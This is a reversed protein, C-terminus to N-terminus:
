TVRRSQRRFNTKVNDAILVGLDSVWAQSGATGTIKVTFEYGSVVMNVVGRSDPSAVVDSTYTFSDSDRSAKYGISLTVNDSCNIVIGKITKIGEAGANFPLTEAVSNALTAAKVAELENSKFHVIQGLQYMGAENIVFTTDSAETTPLYFTNKYSHKTIRSITKGNLFRSYGLKQIGDQSVLLVEGQSNVLIPIQGTHTMPTLCIDSALQTKGFTFREFDAPQLVYIGVSTNVIVAHEMPHIGYVTGPMQIYGCSMKHLQDYGTEGSALHLVDDDGVACGLGENFAGCWFVTDARPTYLLDGFAEPSFGTKPMAFFVMGKASCCRAHTNPYDTDTVGVTVKTNYTSYTKVLGFPTPAYGTLTSLDSVTTLAAAMRLGNHTPIWNLLSNMFPSNVVEEANPDLGRVLHDKLNSFNM